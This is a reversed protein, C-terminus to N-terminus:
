TEIEQHHVDVYFEHVGIMTLMGTQNQQVDDDDAAAATHTSMADISSEQAIVCVACSIYLYDFLFRSVGWRNWNHTHTHTYLKRKPCEKGFQNAIIALQPIKGNSNGANHGSTIKLKRYM